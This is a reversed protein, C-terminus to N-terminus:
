FFVSVIKKETGPINEAGAFTLEKARVDKVGGRRRVHDIEDDLNGGKLTILWPVGSPREDGTRYFPRSWRVLDELPAVARAIIIDFRKSLTAITGKDEARGWQVYINTLSLDTIMSQVADVKKRTADLLTINLDPRVLKIPIGPLGGGSGLDLIITNEPVDCEFLISMSHLIHADWLNDVDRRSVLNIKANWERLLRAYAVLGDSAQDSLFISNKACIRRIKLIQETDHEM